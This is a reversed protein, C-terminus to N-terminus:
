KLSDIIKLLFKLQKKSSSFVDVPKANDTDIEGSDLVKTSYFVNDHVWYANSDVIAVNISNKNLLKNMQSIKKNNNKLVQNNKLNQFNKRQHSKIHYFNM